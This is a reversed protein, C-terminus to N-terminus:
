SIKSQFVVVLEVVVEVSFEDLEEVSDVLEEVSDLLEAVAQAVVVM